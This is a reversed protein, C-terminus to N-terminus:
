TTKWKLFFFFLHKSTISLTTKPSFGPCCLFLGAAVEKREGWEVPDRDLGELGMQPCQWPWVWLWTAELGQRERPVTEAEDTAAKADMGACLRIQDLVTEAAEGRWMGMWDKWEGFAPDETSQHCLGSHLMRM